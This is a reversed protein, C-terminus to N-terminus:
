LRGALGAGVLSDLVAGGDMSPCFRMLVNLMGGGFLAAADRITDAVCVDGAIGCIDLGTAGCATVIGRIRDTAGPAKFISYEERNADEGNHLVTVKDRYMMLADMVPQWIAAGVSDAVCHPPWKGGADSFSCHNMPHRDATVIVHGYERGKDRIYAALRDMADVADPVALTGSVFDVQPDVVILIKKEM